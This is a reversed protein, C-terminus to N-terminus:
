HIGRLVTGVCDVLGVGNQFHPAHPRDGAPKKKLCKSCDDYVTTRIRVGMGLQGPGRSNTTFRHTVFAGPADFIGPVNLREPNPPTANSFVRRAASPNCGACDPDPGRPHNPHETELPGIM